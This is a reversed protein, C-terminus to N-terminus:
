LHAQFSHLNWLGPAPNEPLRLFQPSRRALIRRHTGAVALKCWHPSWVRPVWFFFFLGHIGRTQGKLRPAPNNGTAPYDIAEGLRTKLTGEAGPGLRIEMCIHMCRKKLIFIFIWFWNQAARTRKGDTFILLNYGRYVPVPLIFKFQGDARSHCPSPMQKMQLLESDLKLSRFRTYGGRGSHM